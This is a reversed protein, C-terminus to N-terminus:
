ILSIAPIISKDYLKIMRVSIIDHGHTKNVDLARIIKSISQDNFVISTLRNMSECEILKPNISNKKINSCM